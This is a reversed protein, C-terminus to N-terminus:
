VVVFVSKKGNNFKEVYKKLMKIKERKKKKKKKKKKQVKVDHCYPAIPQQKGFVCITGVTTSINVPYCSKCFM